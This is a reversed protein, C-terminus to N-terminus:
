NINNINNMLTLHKKTKKHRTLHQKTSICGCECTVPEKNKALIEVKNKEYKAKQKILIDTKNKYYSELAKVRKREANNANSFYLKNYANKDAKMKEISRYAAIENLEPTLRDIYEQELIRLDEDELGAVEEVVILKIHINNERIKQYVKYNHQPANINKCYSKHERLRQKLDVTSGIYLEDHVQIKYIYGM